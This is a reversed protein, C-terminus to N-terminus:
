QLSSDCCQVEFEKDGETNKASSATQMGEAIGETSEAMFLIKVTAFIIRLDEWISPNAIYMLDMQLKDYPTTNYKGYVQAYGTLGAKAQLRLSFEPLEQEYVAAIEPREPRPGVITMSGGLINFLQPLEDIRLKRIVRGVPTIRDDHDGTSLRAVGDKEADQRMSRFKLINFVRGNKTLRRQRYFAPGGDTVKIILATIIMIPSLILLMAGSIFIDMLRKLFLYEPTPNYRDVRLLPLHFLHMRKAGSMIVDGIRPLVYVTIGCNVCYKLLVNREHSHVGCLFVVEAEKLSNMKGSICEKVNESIVVSFKKKLGYSNILEQMNSCSDYIIATKKPPFMEFYWTHAGCSWLAALLLQVAFIIGIPFINLLRGSTLCFVLYIVADAIFATLCQSYIMESIRVISILFSDYVHGCVTYLIAFILAVWVCSWSRDLSVSFLSYYFKWGAMVPLTLLLVDLFKVLRLSIGHRLIETEKYKKDNM